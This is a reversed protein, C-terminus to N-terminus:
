PQFDDTGLAVAAWKQGERTVRREGVLEQVVQEVRISLIKADAIELKGAGASIWPTGPGALREFGHFFAESLDHSVESRCPDMKEAV